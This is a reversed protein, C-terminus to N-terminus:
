HDHNKRSQLLQRIAERLQDKTGHGDVPQIVWNGEGFEEPAVQQARYDPHKIAGGLCFVRYKGSRVLSRIVSNAQIGVGSPVLPHDSLWLINTREDAM